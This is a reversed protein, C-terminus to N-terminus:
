RIARRLVENVVKSYSVSGESEKIKKAQLTHLKKDLDDELVFTIRKSM